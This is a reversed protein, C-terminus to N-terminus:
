NNLKIQKSLWTCSKDRYDAYITFWSGVRVLRAKRGTYKVFITDGQMSRTTCEVRYKSQSTISVVRAQINRPQSYGKVSILCLLAIFIKKMLKISPTAM